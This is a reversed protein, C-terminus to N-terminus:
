INPLFLTIKTGAGSASQVTLRGDMIQLRERISFLGFSNTSRKNESVTAPDFGNGDDEVVVEWGGQVSKLSVTVRTAEAHKFANFLLERTAHFLIASSQEPIEVNVSAVASTDVSMGYAEDFQRALWRLAEGLGADYLIPPSLQATLSRSRNIAETLLTSIQALTRQVSELDNQGVASESYMKAAVMSSQVEDHLLQALQRREREETQSLEFALRQLQAAREEALEHARRRKAVQDELEENVARLQVPSPIALAKPILPWLIGATALSVLGTGLKVLGDLKYYPKWLALVGFLHTTGCALIFTAFMLFLWPYVLDKRQRVFVVLAFPISFYALAILADSILHLWVVPAEYNMCVQRPTYVTFLNSFFSGAPTEEHEM